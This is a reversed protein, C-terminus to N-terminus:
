AAPKQSAEAPGRRGARRVAAESAEPGGWPGLFSSGVERIVSKMFAAFILSPLSPTLSPLASCPLSLPPCRLPPSNVPPSPLPYCCKGAGRAARRTSSRSSIGRSSARLAGWRTRERSKRDSVAIQCPAQRVEVRALLQVSDHM